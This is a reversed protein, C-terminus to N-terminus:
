QIVTRQVSAFSLDSHKSYRVFIAAGVPDKEYHLLVRYAILFSNSNILSVHGNASCYDNLACVTQQQLCFVFRESPQVPGQDLVGHVPLGLLVPLRQQLCTQGHCSCRPYIQPFTCMRSNRGVDGIVLDLPMAMETGYVMSYLSLGM